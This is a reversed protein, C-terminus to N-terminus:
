ATAGRRRLYVVALGLLATGLLALASPEPVVTLVITNGQESLTAQYGDITGSSSVFASSTSRAEILPYIGEGFNATWTFDFVPQGGLILEGTPMLVEGSTAPTDLDYDLERTAGINLSGGSITAVGSGVNLIGNLSLSKVGPATITSGSGACM